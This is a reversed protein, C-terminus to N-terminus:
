MSNEEDDSGASMHREFVETIDNVFAQEDRLSALARPTFKLGLPVGAQGYRAHGLAHGQRSAPPLIQPEDRKPPRVSPKGSHTDSFGM